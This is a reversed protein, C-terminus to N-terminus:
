AEQRELRIVKVIGTGIFGEGTPPHYLFSFGQEEDDHRDMFDYEGGGDSMYAAFARRDKETEFQFTLSFPTERKWQETNYKEWAERSDDRDQSMRAKCFEEWAAREEETTKSM